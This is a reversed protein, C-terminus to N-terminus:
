PPYSVQGAPVGDPTTTVRAPEARFSAWQRYGAIEELTKDAAAHAGITVAAVSSLVATLAFLQLTSKRM